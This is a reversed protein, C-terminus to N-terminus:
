PGVNIVYVNNFQNSEEHRFWWSPQSNVTMVIGSQRQNAFDASRITTLQRIVKVRWAEDFLYFIM